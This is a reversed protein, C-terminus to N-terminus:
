SAVDVVNSRSFFEALFFLGVLFLSGVFAVFAALLAQACLEGDHEQFRDILTKISVAFFFRTLSAFV